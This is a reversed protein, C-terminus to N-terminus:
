VDEDADYDTEDRHQEEFKDVPKGQREADEGPIRNVSNGGFGKRGVFHDLYRVGEDRADDSEAPEKMENESPFDGNKDMQPVPAAGNGGDGDDDKDDANQQRDLDKDPIENDPLVQPQQRDKDYEQKVDVGRDLKGMDGDAINQEIQDKVADSKQHGKAAVQGHQNQGEGQTAHLAGQASQPLLGQHNQVLGQLTQGFGRLNQLVDQHKQGFGQIDQPLGQQNQGLGQQNPSLGQQNQGFGQRNQLM